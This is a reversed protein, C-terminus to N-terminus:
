NEMIETIYKKIMFYVCILFGALFGGIIIGKIKSFREKTLPLLPNDIVQILPTEKRISIKALELNKVLESLIAQNAQVDVQRKSSPVGLVQRAPNANPNVDMAIAVGGIAANLERRISDTQNQIIVLNQQSKKTRTEIYFDNVNKVLVETFDKAFSENSSRTEVSILSLLNDPKSVKLYNQNIDNVIQGILSDHQL